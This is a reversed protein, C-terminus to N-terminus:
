FCTGLNPHALGNTSRTMGASLTMSRLDEGLDGPDYGSGDPWHGVTAPLNIGDMRMAQLAFTTCNNTNLDYIFDTSGSLYNLINFFGSGTVPITVSINYQHNQDNDLEGPASPSVPSVADRPYFGVNRVIDGSPGSEKLILFTHGVSVPNGTASSGSGTYGWTQRTGPVPQSVCVTINYSYGNGAINTFCKLYDSINGIINDGGPIIIMKAGLINLGSGVLKLSSLNMGTAITEDSFDYTYSCGAPESWYYIEGPNAPSTTYGSITYCTEILANPAEDIQTQGHVTSDMKALAVRGDEGIKIKMSSSGDWNEVFLIGSFNRGSYVSDPFFSIWRMDLNGSRDRFILLRTIDDADYNKKNFSSALYFPQSFEVPVVLISNGESHVTLAKDWSPSKACRRPLFYRSDGVSNVEPSQVAISQNFFSQASDKFTYTILLSENKKCSILFLLLFPYLKRM